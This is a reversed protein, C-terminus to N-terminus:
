RKPFWKLRNRYAGLWSTYSRAEAVVVALMLWILLRNTRELEGVFDATPTV